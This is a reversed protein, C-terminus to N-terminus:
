GLGPVFGSVLFALIVIVTVMMMQGVTESVGEERPFLRNHSISELM